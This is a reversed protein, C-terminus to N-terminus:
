TPEPDLQNGAAAFGDEIAAKVSEAIAARMRQLSGPSVVIDVTITPNKPRPPTEDDDVPEPTPEPEPRPRGFSSVERSAGFSGAM